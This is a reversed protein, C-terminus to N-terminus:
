SPPRETHRERTARRRRHARDPDAAVIEARELAKQRIRRNIAAAATAIVAVNFVMAVLVVGRAFQKEAHIDGFGVTLLTTVTFYLADLRTDLDVIQDPDVRDIVYFAAAFSLIAVVLAILLGDVHRTSDVMQGRLQWVIAVTLLLILALCVAIRGADSRDPHATAPVTFYIVVLLVLVLALRFWRGWGKV